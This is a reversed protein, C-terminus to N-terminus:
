HHEILLPSTDIWKNTIPDFIKIRKTYNNPNLQINNKEDISVFGDSYNKISYNKVGHNIKNGSLLSKFDNETLKYSNVGKAKIIVEENNNSENWIIL